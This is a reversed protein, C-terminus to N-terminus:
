FIEKMKNAVSLWAKATKLDDAEIAENIKELLRDQVIRRWNTEQTWYTIHPNIQFNDQLFFNQEPIDGTWSYTVM